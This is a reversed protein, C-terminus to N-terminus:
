PAFVVMLMLVSVAFYGIGLLVDWMTNENTQHQKEGPNPTKNNPTSTNLIKSFMM